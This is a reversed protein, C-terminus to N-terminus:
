NRIEKDKVPRITFGWERSGEKIHYGGWGTELYDAYKADDNPYGVCRQTCLWYFGVDGNYKFGEFDKAGAFPIFISNGNPGIVFNGRTGNLTGGEWKCKNGLEAMDEDSPTRAGDGGM